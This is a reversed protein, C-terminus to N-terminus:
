AREAVAEDLAKTRRADASDMPITFYFTSGAGEQSEVWIRGGHREVIRKCVALGIGSGGYTDHGHLRKFLGFIREAYEPKFGIGNDAVSFLCETGAREASVRIWPVVGSRRYKVANEILNQFVQQLRDEWVLLEPLPGVEVRANTSSLLMRLDDIVRRVVDNCDVWSKERDALGVRSYSLLSRMMEQMRVASTRIVKLYQLAEPPLSAAHRRELLESYISQNRLPEQLDHSVSYAFAQLDENSRMLEATRQRLVSQSDRLHQETELQKHLTERLERQTRLQRLLALVTILALTSIFIVVMWLRQSQYQEHLAQAMSDAQAASIPPHRTAIASLTGDATIEAIRSRLREAARRAAKNAVISMRVNVPSARVVLRASECVAPRQSVLEYIYTSGVLAADAAKRCVKGLADAASPALIQRWHPYGAAAAAALRHTVALAAPKARDVGPHDARLLLISDETWWPPSVYFLRRREPTALAMPLLDFGGQSLALDNQAMGGAKVWEIELGERRGAETFLEILFGAPKGDAGEYNYPHANGFGVRLTGSASCSLALLLLASPKM